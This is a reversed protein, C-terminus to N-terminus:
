RTFTLMAELFYYDGDTLYEDALGETVHQAGFELLGTRDNDKKMCETILTTVLIKAQELYISEGTLYALRLLGCAAIAKVSNDQYQPYKRILAFGM